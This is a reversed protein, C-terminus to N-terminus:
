KLLTNLKEELWEVYDLCPAQLRNSELARQWSLPLDSVCIVDEDDCVTNSLRSFIGYAVPKKGTDQQYKLHLQNM